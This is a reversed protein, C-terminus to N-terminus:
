CLLHLMFYYNRNVMVTGPGIVRQGLVLQVRGCMCYRGRLLVTPEPDRECRRGGEELSVTGRRVQEDWRTGCCLNSLTANAM